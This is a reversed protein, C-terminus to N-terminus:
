KLKQNDLRKHVLSNNNFSTFIMGEKQKLKWGHCNNSNTSTQM